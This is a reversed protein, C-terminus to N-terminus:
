LPSIGDNSCYVAQLHSLPRRSRLRRAVQQHSHLAAEIMVKNPRQTLLRYGTQQLPAPIQPHVVAHHPSEHGDPARHQRGEAVARVVRHLYLCEEQIYDSNRQEHKGINASPIKFSCPLNETM